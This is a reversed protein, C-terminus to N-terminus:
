VELAFSHDWSISEDDEYCLEIDQLSGRETAHLVLKLTNSQTTNCIDPRIWFRDPRGGVVRPSLHPGFWARGILEDNVFVDARINLGNLGVYCGAPLCIDSPLKGELVKVQGRQIELSEFDSVLTDSVRKVENVSEIAWGEISTRGPLAIVRDWIGRMAGLHISPKETDHFNSHGWSEVVIELLIEGEYCTHFECTFPEGAPAYTGEAHGNVYVWVVDAGGGIEVGHLSGQLRATYRVKGFLHGTSEMTTPTTLETRDGSASLRAASVSEWQIMPSSVTSAPSRWLELPKQTGEWSMWLTPQQDFDGRGEIMSANSEHRLSVQRILRPGILFGEDSVEWLRGAEERSVGAVVVTMGESYVLRTVSAQLPLRIVDGHNDSSLIWGAGSVDMLRHVSKLKLTATDSSGALVVRLENDRAQRYVLNASGSLHFPAGNGTGDGVHWVLNDFWTTFTRPPVQIETTQGSTEDVLGGRIEQEGLNFAFTLCGHPSQVVRSHLGLQQAQESKVVDTVNVRDRFIDGAASVVSTLIRNEHFLPRITGDASIMGGFDYDTAIFSPKAGWNNVGNWPGIHVGSVHLYPSIVEFGASVLRSQTLIDRHTEMIFPGVGIDHTLKVYNAWEDDLEPNAISSPYINIMPVVQTSGGTAGQMDGQGICATVPVDIGRGRVMQALAEIYGKPDDCPYFDLENEVQVAVIRGAKTTQRESIMPIIQDYWRQVYSLWAPDNQRIRVGQKPFIWSPISGGDWEACIYPGPRAIIDLGLEAALDLFAAVDAEGDFTFQGEFREHFNWPIYVDIAQFGSARVKELRDRWQPRPIRFYFVSSVFTISDFISSRPTM